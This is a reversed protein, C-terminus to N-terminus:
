MERMADEAPTLTVAAFGVANGNGDRLTMAGREPSYDDNFWQDVAALIRAVEGPNEEFAANDMKIELHFLM